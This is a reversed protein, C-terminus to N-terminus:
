SPLVEELNTTTTTTALLTTTTAAVTSTVSFPIFQMNTIGFLLCWNVTAACNLCIDHWQLVIKFLDWLVM